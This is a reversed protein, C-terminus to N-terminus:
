KADAALSPKNPEFILMRSSLTEPIYCAAFQKRGTLEKVRAVVADQFDDLTMPRSPDVWPRSVARADFVQLISQAFAGHGTSVRQSVGHNAAVFTIVNQRSLSRVYNTLGTRTDAPGKPHATDLLLMVRCGRGAIEVLTSALEDASLTEAVNPAEETDGAIVFRDKSGTLMHSELLVVLMDGPDQIESKLQSLMGRLSAGKVADGIIPPDDSVHEYRPTGNPAAFFQRLDKADESAYPIQPFKSVKFPGGAGIALVHLTPAKADAISVAVDVTEIRKKGDRNEVEV